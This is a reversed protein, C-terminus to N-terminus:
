ITKLSTVLTKDDVKAEGMAMDLWRIKDNFFPITVKVRLFRSVL